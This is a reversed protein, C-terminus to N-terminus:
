VRSEPRTREPPFPSAAHDFEAFLGAVRLATWRELRGRLWRADLGGLGSQRALLELGANALPPPLRHRQDHVEAPAM